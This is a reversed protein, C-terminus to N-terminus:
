KELGKMRGDLEWFDKQLKEYKAQVLRRQLDTEAQKVAAEVIAAELVEIKLKLEHSEM